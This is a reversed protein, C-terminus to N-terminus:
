SGVEARTQAQEPTIQNNALERAVKDFHELTGKLGIWVGIGCTRLLNKLFYARLCAGGSRARDVRLV